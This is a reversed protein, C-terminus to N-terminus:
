DPAIALRQRKLYLGKRSLGLIKAAADMHWNAAKLAHLLLAREIQEVAAGLPQDLRVSVQELAASPPADLPTQRRGRTIYASLHEPLLITGDEALAVLKKVENSLQRINGPWDYVVLHEMTEHAVALGVKHQEAAYRKLFHKVFFPIEERRDRLPPITFRIVNLRYYLDDRFRGTEILHELNANSAAVVRVDVALPKAEGLPHIEGCELFRLLKPQVELSVEGIEDLFLTGGRAARIVGDFHDQAGSFSGKRYGFLQSEVLDRPVAACNFAIFPKSARNSHTHLARAIVEKGTGTEGSLLVPIPTSAVKQLNRIIGNMSDSALVMEGDLNLEESPWIAKRNAWETRLRHM